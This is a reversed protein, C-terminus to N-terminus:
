QQSLNQKREIWFEPKRHGHAIALIWITTGIQLYAIYHRFKKLNVRRYGGVRLRAV